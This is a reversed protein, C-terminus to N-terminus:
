VACDLTWELQLTDNRQPANIVVLEQEGARVRDQIKPEVGPALAAVEAARVNFVRRTMVRRSSGTFNAVQDGEDPMAVLPIAPGGAGPSWLIPEGFQQYAIDLVAQADDRFSM